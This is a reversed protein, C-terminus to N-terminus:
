TRKEPETGGVDTNILPASAPVPPIRYSVREYEFRLSPHDLAKRHHTRLRRDACIHEGVARFRICFDIDEGYDQGFICYLPEPDQPPQGAECYYRMFDAPVLALAADRHIWWHGGSIRRVEFRQKTWLDSERGELPQLYFTKSVAQAPSASMGFGEKRNEEVLMLCELLDPEPFTDCDNILLWDRKSQRFNEILRSTSWDLRYPTDEYVPEVDVENQQSWWPDFEKVFRTPIQAPARVGVMVSFDANPNM